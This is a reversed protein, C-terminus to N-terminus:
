QVGGKISFYYIMAGVMVVVAVLCATTWGLWALRRRRKVVFDNELLPISGLVSMQTYARVDKLNKLSTDKMERAGAIAIGLLLGLGAGISIVMPRKPETPDTPLSATDLPELHEGQNRTEMDQSRQAKDLKDSLDMYKQKAMERDRMLDMYTKQGVPGSQILGQYHTISANLQKIDKGLQDMEMQKGEIMAQLQRMRGERDILERQLAPNTRALSDSKGDRKASAEKKAEEKRAEEKKANDEKELEAKKQKAIELRAVTNQVDPHTEGYRQRANRLADELANVEHEAEILRENRQQQVATTIQPPMEAAQKTIATTQDKLINLNSEMQLKENAARNM